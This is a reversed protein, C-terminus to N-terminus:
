YLTTFDASVGRYRDDTLIANIRVMDFKLDHTELKERVAELDDLAQAISTSWCGVQVLISSYVSTFDKVKSDTILDIIICREPLQIAGDVTRPIADRIFAPAVENAAARVAALVDHLTM